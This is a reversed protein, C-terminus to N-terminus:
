WRAIGVLYSAAGNNLLFGKWLTFNYIYWVWNYM